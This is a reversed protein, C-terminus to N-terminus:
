WRPRDHGRSCRGGSSFRLSRQHPAEPRVPRAAAELGHGSRTPDPRRAHRRPCAARRRVRAPTAVWRHPPCGRRCPRLDTGPASRWPPWVLSRQRGGSGRRRPSAPPRLTDRARFVAARVALASPVRTPRRLVRQRRPPRDRHHVPRSVALPRGCGRGDLAGRPRDGAHAPAGEDRAHRRVRLGRRRADAVDGPRVAVAHGRVTTQDDGLRVSARRTM